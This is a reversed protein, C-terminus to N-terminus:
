IFPSSITSLIGKQFTKRLIKFFFVLDVVQLQPRISRKENEMTKKTHKEAHKHQSRCCLLDASALKHVSNNLFSLVTYIRKRSEYRLPITPHVLSVSFVVIPITGCFVSFCTSCQETHGLLILWRFRATQTPFWVYKTCYRTKLMRHNISSLRAVPVAHPRPM